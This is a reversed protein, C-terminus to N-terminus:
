FDSEILAFRRHGNCCLVILKFLRAKEFIKAPSIPHQRGPFASPIRGVNTYHGGHTRPSSTTLRAMWDQAQAGPGVDM